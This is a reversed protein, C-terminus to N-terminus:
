ENENRTKERERQIEIECKENDIRIPLYHQVFIVFVVFRIEHATFDPEIINNASQNKDFRYVFFM